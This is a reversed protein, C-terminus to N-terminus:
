ETASSLYKLGVIASLISGGGWCILPLTKEIVYNQMSEDLDPDIGSFIKLGKGKARAWYTTGFFPHQQAIEYAKNGAYISCGLAALGIITKSIIAGTSQRKKEKKEAFLNTAPVLLLLSLLIRKM